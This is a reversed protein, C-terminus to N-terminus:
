APNFEFDMLATELSIEETGHEFELESLFKIRSGIDSYLFINFRRLEMSFGETVGDEMFYNTNAEFYGGVATNTKGVAIFPRQYIADHNTFSSDDQALCIFPSSLSVFLLLFKMFKCILIFIKKM